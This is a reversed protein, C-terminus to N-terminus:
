FKLKFISLVKKLLRSHISLPRNDLFHKVSYFDAKDYAIKDPLQFLKTTERGVAGSALQSSFASNVGCHTGSGDFGENLVKPYTSYLVLGGSRSVCYWWLIGWSNNKGSFRDRLMSLYSISTSFDFRKLWEKDRLSDPWDPPTWSFKNWARSWTAWGWTTTLPLFFADKRIDKPKILPLAGIQMIVDNSQYKLLSQRMFVLFDPLVRLDDEIVIVCGYEECLSSVGDHISRALGYNTERFILQANFITNQSKLISRVAEVSEKQSLDGPGDSYFYFSFSKYDICKSLYNLCKSAHGPRNYFFVAVPIENNM